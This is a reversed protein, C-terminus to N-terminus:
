PLSMYTSYPIYTSRGLFVFMLFLLMMSGLFINIVATREIWVIRKVLHPMLFISYITGYLSLRHGITGYRFLFTYILIAVLFFNSELEFLKGQDKNKKKDLMVLFAVVWFICLWMWGETSNKGNLYVLYGMNKKALFSIFFQWGVIGGGAWVFFKRITLRSQALFFFGLCIIATKHFMSAVSICIVFKVWQRKVIYDFAFVSIALATAFRVISFFNLWFLPFFLYCAISIWKNESYKGVIKFICFQQIFANVSFYLWPSNLKRAIFVLLINLIEGNNVINTSKNSAITDYYAQYDWGVNYRLAVFLFSTIFIVIYFFSESKISIKGIQGVFSIEYKKDLIGCLYIFIVLVAYIEM